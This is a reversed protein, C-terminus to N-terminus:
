RCLGHVPFSRVKLVQKKGLRALTDADRDSSSMEIPLSDKQEECSPPEFQAFETTKTVAEFQALEHEAATAAGRM